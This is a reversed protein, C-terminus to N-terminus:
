FAADIILKAGLTTIILRFAMRIINQPARVLIHTGMWTGLTTAGILVLTEAYYRSFSFGIIAFVVIKSVHQATMCAAHTGILKIQQPIRSAILAAVLPGTAGVFMTMFTTLAGGAAPFQAHQAVLSRVPLWVSFIIFAGMLVGVLQESMVGVLPFAALLGILSGLFFHGVFRMDVFQRLLILRLFSAISEVAAHIPVVAQIPFTTAMLAFTIGGSTGIATSIIAALCCAVSLALLTTLPISVFLEM